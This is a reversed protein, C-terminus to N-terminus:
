FRRATPRWSKRSRHSRPEPLASHILSCLFPHAKTFPSPVDKRLEALGDVFLTNYTHIRLGSTARFPEVKRLLNGYRKADPEIFACHLERASWRDRSNQMAETAAKLAASPSGHPYNRYEDPGAFGDLYLLHQGPKSTGLIQFYAVLYARLVEVKAVTHPEATWIVDTQKASM